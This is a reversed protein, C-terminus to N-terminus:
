HDVEATIAVAAARSVWQSGSSALLGLVDQTAPQSVMDGCSACRFELLTARTDDFVISCQEIDVEHTHGAPCRLRVV